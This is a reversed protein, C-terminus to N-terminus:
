HLKEGNSALSFYLSMSVEDGEHLLGSKEAAGGRVIRGIIVAEGENRVTAGLWFFVRGFSYGFCLKVILNKPFGVSFQVQSLVPQYQKPNTDSQTSTTFVLDFLINRIVDQMLWLEIWYCLRGCLIQLRNNIKSTMSTKEFSRCPVICCLNSM